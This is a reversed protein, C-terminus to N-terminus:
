VGHVTVTMEFVLHLECDWCGDFCCFGVSVGMAIEGMSMVILSMKVNEGDFEFELNIGIVSSGFRCAVM